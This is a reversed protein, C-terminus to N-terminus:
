IDSKNIISKYKKAFVNEPNLQFEQKLINQVGAVDQLDYASHGSLLCTVAAIGAADGIACLNPLVRIESWAFSSANLAYGCILM